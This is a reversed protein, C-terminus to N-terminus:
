GLRGTQQDFAGMFFEDGTVWTVGTEGVDTRENTIGPLPRERGEDAGLAEGRHIKGRFLKLLVTARVRQRGHHVHDTSQQEGAFRTVRTDDYGHPVCRTSQQPDLAVM